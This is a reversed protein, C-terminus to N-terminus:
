NERYSLKLKTTLNKIKNKQKKINLPAKESTRTAWHLSFGLSNYATLIMSLFAKFPFSSESSFSILTKLLYTSEM